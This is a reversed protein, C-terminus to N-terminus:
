GGLIGITKYIVYALIVNIASALTLPVIMAMIFAMGNLPFGLLITIPALVLVLAVGNLLIGSTCAVVGNTRKYIIGFLYATIGMGLTIVLHIPVTLPFGSSISTLIHGVSAVIAGPVPGLYLAAFFGPMSDLAITGQIKILSGIFSIAVLMSIYVLKVTTNKEEISKYNM